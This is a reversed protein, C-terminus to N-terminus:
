PHTLSGRSWLQRLADWRPDASETSCDCTGQNRNTGCRSCIGRCEEGCLSRMPLWLMVQEQLVEPLALGPEEYFGVDTQERGIAVEEKHAIVSMPYYFLDLQGDLRTSVADLCRACAGQMKGQVTGRVRITRSGAPDLLEAAGVAHLGGSQSWECGSFNLKGPAFSEDFRIPRIELASVHFLM